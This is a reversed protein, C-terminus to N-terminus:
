EKLFPLILNSFFIIFKCNSPLNNFNNETFHGNPLISETFHGKLSGAMRYPTREPLHGNPWNSEALHTETLQTKTLRVTIWLKYWIELKQPFKM